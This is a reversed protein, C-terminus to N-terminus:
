FKLEGDARCVAHEPYASISYVLEDDKDVPFFLKETPDPVQPRLCRPINKFGAAPVSNLYRLPIPINHTSKKQGGKRGTSESIITLVKEGNLREIRNRSSSIESEDEETTM